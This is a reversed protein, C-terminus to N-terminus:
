HCVLQFDMGAPHRVSSFLWMDAYSGQAIVAGIARDLDFTYGRWLEGIGTSDDKTTLSVPAGGNTAYIGYESAFYVNGRSQVITRADFCGVSATVPQLQMNREAETAYGPPVDGLVRQIGNRQFLLLAGQISAMGIVEGGTDIWNNAASWNMPDSLASFWIRNPNSASNGLVLRNLHICSCKAQPAGTLDIVQLNGGSMYVRQPGRGGYGHTLILSGESGHLWFPPNEFPLVTQAFSGGPWGTNKTVNYIYNTNGKSSIMVLRPDNPFECMACINILDESVAPSAYNAGGRKRVLGPKDCFFDRMRVVGGDPIATRPLDRVMGGSFDAEELPIPLGHRFLYANGPGPSRPVPPM